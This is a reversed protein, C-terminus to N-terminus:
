EAALAALHAPAAARVEATTGGMIIACGTCPVMESLLELLQTEITERYGESETTALARFLFLLSCAQLLSRSGSEEMVPAVDATRFLLTTEGIAITDGPELQAQSIRRGNLLTGSDTHRDAVSYGKASPQISCHDWAAASDQLQVDAGPDRGVRLGTASLPYRKGAHPGTVAILESEM